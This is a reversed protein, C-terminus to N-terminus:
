VYIVIAGVLKRWQLGEEGYNYRLEEGYPIDRIAYLCLHPVGQFVEKKMVCNGKVSDNVFRGLQYSNTADM